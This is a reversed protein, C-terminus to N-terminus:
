NREKDFKNNLKNLFDTFYQPLESEFELWKKTRPHVFGIHKAHLCQGNLGKQVKKPGYVEDGAIPHGLHAMHVRIQHTRGTELICRVYTFQGYRKLVKFHTIAEKSNVNTVAMKKRDKPNRGIPLNITGEDEKINGHVVCEYARNFSHEKIQLALNEMAFDSKGVILLGSTDKDIRHVIGPRDEGNIKSLNDNCHYLLANVLTGSYNGTAPHVVMGKPKNVVLLDDDEYVIDLSINEPLIEPPALNPAIFEVNDNEKCKYKKNVVNGNIFANGDDIAKAIASRSYEDTKLSIFKDIRNGSNDKDVVFELKKSM